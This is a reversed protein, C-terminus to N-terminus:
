SKVYLKKNRIKDQLVAMSGRAIPEVSELIVISQSKDDAYGPTSWHQTYYGELAPWNNELVTEGNLVLTMNPSIHQKISDISRQNVADYFSKTRNVYDM